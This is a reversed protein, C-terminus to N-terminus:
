NKISVINNGNISLITNEGAIAAIVDEPLRMGAGAIVSLGKFFTTESAKIYGAPNCFIIDYNGTPINQPLTFQLTNNNLITFEVPTGSFPPYFSSINKFNSYFNLFETNFELSGSLYLGNGTIHDFMDGEITITQQPTNKLYVILPRGRM